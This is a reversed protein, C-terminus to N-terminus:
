EASEIYPDLGMALCMKRHAKEQDLLQNRSKRQRREIVRQTRQFVRIWRRPLEAGLTGLFNKRLAKLEKPTLYRFLEDELSLWFQFSGPDGQRAARGILQRDIRHNTHMETAIVHLGGCARVADHLGIDTGRGAMNTAITINGPQGAQAVIQAELDDNLANLIQCTLGRSKLVNGLAESAKVSPTGILLARGAQHLQEIEPVLAAQKAVETAFMRPPFGRRICPLHTPISTVQMRYTKRFEGIASLATGTMGALHEYRRFFSQVTIRAAEGTEATIPVREKAEIAQHLGGQWKRGEQTRGTSEDIIAIEEDPNVIYDHGRQFGYHAQIAQEVHTLIKETDFVALLPPKDALIVKHSGGITLEADRTAPDYQFDIGPELLRVLDRSWDLLAEGSVSTDKNLGIILPTVADDILVSDAEDILAFYHGRQVPLDDRSGHDPFLPPRYTEDLRTGFKLRDRLFDFGIERGTAYTIDQAYALRRERGEPEHTSVVCGVTLGLRRYVPAMLECDRQALYDNVTVVHCGRGPLARLFTPLTATLTKGEGTQMEALGGEFLAIGGMLQVLYHRKGLARTAAERVLAYAEPLLVNLPVGSKAQWRIEKSRTLIADDELGSLSDSLQVINRAMAKWRSLRATM